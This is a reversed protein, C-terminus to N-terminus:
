PLPILRETTSNNGCSSPSTPDERDCGTPYITKTAKFKLVKNKEDVKTIEYSTDTEEVLKKVEGTVLNRFVIAGDNSRYPPADYHPDKSGEDVYVVKGYSDYFNVFDGGFPFDVGSWNAIPTFDKDAWEGDPAPKIPIMVYGYNISGGGAGPDGMHAELIINSDDKTIALPVFLGGSNGTYSVSNLNGLFVSSKNDIVYLSLQDGWVDLDKLDSSVGYIRLVKASGHFSISYNSLGAVDPTSTPNITPKLTLTPTATPESSPNITPQPTSIATVPTSKKVLVSYVIASIITILSLLVIVVFIIKIVFLKDKPM